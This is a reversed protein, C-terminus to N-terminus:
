WGGGVGVKKGKKVCRVVISKLVQDLSQGHAMHRKRLGEKQRKVKEDQVKKEVDAKELDKPDVMKAQHRM